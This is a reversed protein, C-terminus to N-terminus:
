IPEGKVLEDYYGGHEIREVWDTIEERTQYLVDNRRVIEDHMCGGNGSPLFARHIHWGHEASAATLSKELVRHLALGEPSTYDSNVKGGSATGGRAIPVGVGELAAGLACSNGKAYLSSFGQPRLKAGERIADSLKMLGERRTSSDLWSNDVVGLAERSHLGAVLLIRPIM